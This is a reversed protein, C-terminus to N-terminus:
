KVPDRVKAQVLIKKCTYCRILLLDIVDSLSKTKTTQQLIQVLKIIALSFPDIIKWIVSLTIFEMDFCQDRERKM